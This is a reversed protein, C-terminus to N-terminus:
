DIIIHEIHKSLFLRTSSMDSCVVTTSKSTKQGFNNTQKKPKYILSVENLKM